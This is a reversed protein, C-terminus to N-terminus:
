LYLDGSVAFHTLPVFAGNWRRLAKAFLPDAVLVTYGAARSIFEEEDTFSLDTQRAEQGDLLFWSGVDVSGYGCAELKSRLANAAMQQHVLLIRADKNQPMQELVREFAPNDPYATRYPIGHEARLRRATKLGSPSVVVTEKVSQLHSLREVTDKGGICDTGCRALDSLCLSGATDLPTAGLVLTHERPSEAGEAAFANYLAEYARRQGKDYAEMGATEVALVPLAAKASIKRCVAALDTAIVSVVPTGILAAFPYDRQSLATLVKKELADDRGFITDLDRIAASYLDCSGGYFRPEDYGCVNGSCGGPDCLVTLAGTEYLVAAAGSYDPAFPALYQFFGKM